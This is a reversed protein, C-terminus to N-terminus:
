EGAPNSSGPTSRLRDEFNGFIFLLDPDYEYLVSYEVVTADHERAIARAKEVSPAALALDPGSVRAAVTAALARSRGQEAVELAEEFRGQAVLVRQLWRLVEVQTEYYWAAQTAHTQASFELYKKYGERMREEAEPYQGALYLNIGLRQLAHPVLASPSGAARDYTESLALDERGYRIASDYDRKWSYAAGVGQVALEEADGNQAFAERHKHVTELNALRLQLVRDYDGSLREEFSLEQRAAVLQKWERQNEALTVAQQALPRAEAPKGSQRLSRAQALLSEISPDIVIARRGTETTAPTAWAFVTACCLVFLSLKIHMLSFGLVQCYVDAERFHTTAANTRTLALVEAACEHTPM